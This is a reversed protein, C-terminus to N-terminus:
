YYYGQGGQPAYNPQQPQTNFHITGTVPVSTPQQMGFKPYQPQQTLPQQQMYPQQVIPQQMLPQQMGYGMGQQQQQPLYGQQQQPYGQQQQPYLNPQTYGMSQPQQYGTNVQGYPMQQQLPQQMIPQQVIPQQMYPQQQQQQGYGLQNTPMMGQQNGYSNSQGPTYKLEVLIRGALRGSKLIDVWPAVSGQQKIQSIMIEGSGIFDDKGPDEDYCHFTVVQENNQLNFIFNEYWVPRKGGSKCTATRQQQTGCNVVCYPDMKGVVDLDKQFEGRTPKVSLQGYNM